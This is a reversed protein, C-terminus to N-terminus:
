EAMTKRQITGTSRFINTYIFTPFIKLWLSTLINNTDKGIESKPRSVTNKEGICNM